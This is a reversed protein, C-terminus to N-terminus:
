KSTNSVATTSTTTSTTSMTNGMGNGMAADTGGSMTDEAGVNTVTDTDTNTVTTTTNNTGSGGCATVLLGASAIMSVAVVKSLIARM